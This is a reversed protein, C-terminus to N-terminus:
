QDGKLSDIEAQIRLLSYIKSTFSKLDSPDITYLSEATLSQLTEDIFQELVPNERKLQEYERKSNSINFGLTKDRKAVEKYHEFTSQELRPLLKIPKTMNQRYISIQDNFETATITSTEIIGIAMEAAYNVDRKSFYDYVEKARELTMKVIADCQTRLVRELFSEKQKDKTMVNYPPPYECNLRSSGGDEM